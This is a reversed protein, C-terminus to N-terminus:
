AAIWERFLFIYCKCSSYFLNVKLNLKKLFLKALHFTKDGVEMDKGGRSSVTLCLRLDAEDEIWSIWETVCFIEWAFASICSNKLILCSFLVVWVNPTLEKAIDKRNKSKVKLVFYVIALIILFSACGNIWSSVLSNIWVERTICSSFVNDLSSTFYVFWSFIVSCSFVLQWNCFQM